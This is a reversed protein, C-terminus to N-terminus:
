DLIEELLFSASGWWVTAVVAMNCCLNAFRALDGRIGSLVWENANESVMINMCFEIVRGWCFFLVVVM